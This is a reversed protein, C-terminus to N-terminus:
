WHHRRLAEAGKQALHQGPHLVLATHPVDLAVQGALQRVLGGLRGRGCHAVFRIRDTLLHPGFQHGQHM